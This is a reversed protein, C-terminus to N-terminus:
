FTAEAELGDPDRPESYYLQSLKRRKPTGQFITKNRSLAFALVKHNCFYYHTVSRSRTEVELTQKSYYKVVQMPLIMM